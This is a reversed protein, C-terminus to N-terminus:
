GQEKMSLGKRKRNRVSIELNERREQLEAFPIYFAKM